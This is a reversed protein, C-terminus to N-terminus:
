SMCVGALWPYYVVRSVESVVNAAMASVTYSTFPGVLYTGTPMFVSILSMVRLLTGLIPVIFNVDYQVSWGYIFLGIPM